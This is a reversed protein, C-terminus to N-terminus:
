GALTGHSDYTPHQDTHTPKSNVSNTLRGRDSDKTVLTVLFPITNDIKTEMTFRITPQQSNFDQLFNDVNDPSLITFTDDVYRKLVKPICPPSSLAQQEFDEKHLNKIVASVPSGTAAGDQEYISGDYQFYTSRL